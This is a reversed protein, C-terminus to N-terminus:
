SRIKMRKQYYRMIEENRKNLYKIDEKLSDEFLYADVDSINSFYFNDECLNVLIDAYRRIPSNSHTYADTKLSDHNSSGLCYQASVNVNEINKIINSYKKRDDLKLSSLDIGCDNLDGNLDHKRFIMPLSMKKFYEAVNKNNFNMFFEILTESTLKTSKDKYRIDNKSIINKLDFLNELTSLLKVNDTTSSLINNVYEYSLNESANLIEKNISFDVVKGYKDIIYNYVRVYRYNGNDLSMNFIAKKPFMTIIENDFYITQSRKKAEQMLLSNMNCFSNPDAIYIKLNYLDDNLKNCSIADDKDFTDDEDITIVYDNAVKREKNDLPNNTVEFLNAENIISDKFYYRVDYLNNLTNIGPVYNKNIVLNYLNNLWLLNKERSKVDLDEREFLRKIDKMEKIKDFDLNKTKDSKFLEELVDNYYYLDTKDGTKVYNNLCSIYKKIILDILKIDSEENYSIILNSYKKILYKVYNLNKQEFIVYNVINSNLILADDAFECVLSLEITDLEDIVDQLFSIKKANEEVEKLNAILDILVDKCNVIKKIFSNKRNLDDEGSLKLINLLNYALKMNTNDYNKVDIAIFKIIELCKDYAKESNTIQLVTKLDDLDKVGKIRNVYAEINYM